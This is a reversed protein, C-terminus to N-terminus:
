NDLYQGIIDDAFDRAMAASRTESGYKFTFTIGFDAEVKQEGLVKGTANDILKATGKIRDKGSVLGGFAITAPHRLRVHNIEVEIHRSATPSIRGKAVFQKQVENVFFDLSFNENEALAKKAEDNTTITIATIHNDAKIEEAKSPPRTSCASVALTLFVFVFAFWRSRM